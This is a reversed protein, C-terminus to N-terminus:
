SAVCWRRCGAVGVRSLLCMVMAARWGGSNITTPDPPRSGRDHQLREVSRHGAQGSNRPQGSPDCGRRRGRRQQLPISQARTRPASRRRFRSSQKRLGPEGLLSLNSEPSAGHGIVINRCFAQLPQASTHFRHASQRTTVGHGQLVGGAAGPNRNEIVEKRLRDEQFDNAVRRSNDRGEQGDIEPEDIVKHHSPRVVFVYM